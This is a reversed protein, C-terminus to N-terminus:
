HELGVRLRLYPRKCGIRVASAGKFHIVVYKMTLNGFLAPNSAMITTTSLFM